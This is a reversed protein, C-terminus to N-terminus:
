VLVKLGGSSTAESDPEAPPQSIDLRPAPVLLLALAVLGTVVGLIGVALGALHINGHVNGEPFAAAVSTGASFLLGADVVLVAAAFGRLVRHVSAQRLTAESTDDADVAPRSVVVGLAGITFSVLLGVGFLAPLGLRPGPFVGTPLQGLGMVKHNWGYGVSVGDPASLVAGVLVVGFALVVSLVALRGLWGSTVTRLSRPALGARRLNGRPGPWTLEGLAMVVTHVLGFAIPAMALELGPFLGSPLTWDSSATAAAAALGSAVALASTVVAHRRADAVPKPLYRSPRATVVLIALVIPALVSFVLVPTAVQLLDM